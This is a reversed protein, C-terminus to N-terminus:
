CPPDAAPADDVPSHAALATLIQAPWPSPRRDVMDVHVLTFQGKVRMEDGCVMEFRVPLSTRGLTGAFLHIDLPDGLISPAVFETQMAKTPIGARHELHMSRFDYDMSAFWSEVAMNLMEYYRPYFVIGAADCHHFGIHLSLTHIPTYM